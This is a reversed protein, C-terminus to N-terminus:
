EVYHDSYEPLVIPLTHTFQNELQELVRIRKNTLIHSQSWINAHRSADFFDIRTV